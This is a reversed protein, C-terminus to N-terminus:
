ADLAGLKRICMVDCRVNLFNVICTKLILNVTELNTLSKTFM